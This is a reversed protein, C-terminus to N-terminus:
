LNRGIRILFQIRSKISEFSSFMNEVNQCVRGLNAINKTVRRSNTIKHDVVEKLIAMM